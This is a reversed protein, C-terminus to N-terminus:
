LLLVRTLGFSIPPTTFNADVGELYGRARRYVAGGNEVEEFNVEVRASKTLCNGIARGVSDIVQFLSAPMPEM